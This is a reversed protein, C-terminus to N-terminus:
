RAARYLVRYGAASGAPEYNSLLRRWEPARRLWGEVDFTGSEILLAEPPSSPLLSLRLMSDQTAWHPLGPIATRGRSLQLWWLCYHPSLWPLRAESVLLWSADDTRGLVLPRRGGLQVKLEAFQRWM